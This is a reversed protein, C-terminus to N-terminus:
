STRFCARASVIEIHGRQEIEEAARRQVAALVADVDIGDYRDTLVTTMSAVYGTVADADTVEFRSQYRNTEVHDFVEGLIDAGNEANFDLVPFWRQPRAGVVDGIADCALEDLHNGGTDDANTGAIVHGGPALVERFGRLAAPKDEVHYLMWLALVAAFSGCAFPLSTASAHVFSADPVAERSAALMADSLDLGVVRAGHAHAARLWIGTGCGVDLVRAGPPWDFWGLPPPPDPAEVLYHHLATRARFNDSTRYNDATADNRWEAM